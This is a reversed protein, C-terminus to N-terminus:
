GIREYIIRFEEAVSDALDLLRTLQTMTTKGNAFQRLIILTKLDSNKSSYKKGSWSDFSEKVDLCIALIFEDWMSLAIPEQLYQLISEALERFESRRNVLLIDLAARSRKTDAFDIGQLLSPNRQVVTM